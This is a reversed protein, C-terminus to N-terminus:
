FAALELMESLQVVRGLSSFVEVGSIDEMNFLNMIQDHIHTQLEEREKDSERFM